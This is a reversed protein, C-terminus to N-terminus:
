RPTKSLMRGVSDSTSASASIRSAARRAAEDAYTSSSIRMGSPAKPIRLFGLILASAAYLGLFTAFAGQYSGTRDFVWGAFPIGLTQFPIMMPGMLGMIRGFVRRGYVAGLLVGWLPLIGGYGLGFLAGAALLAPHTSASMIGALGLGQLGIALWMCARRDIRDGLWGFLPKGLAALGAMAALVSAAQGASHGLDTAHPYIQLIVATNGSFNLGVVIAIIWVSRERLARGVTWDADGQAERPGLESVPARADGDPHLGRDEPRSVVLFGILPTLFLLPVIGFVGATGRWGVEAVLWSAVYAMVMGSASVGIQSIGLATGRRRVFWNAVLATNSLGGLLAMGVAVGLGFVLYFQWLEVVRSLGLFGAGLALSGLLMVSRIYGRDVARGVLPGACGVVIFTLPLASVVALRSSGLDEVLPKLLIGYAYFVTGITVFQTLFTVAVIVWGYFIGAAM